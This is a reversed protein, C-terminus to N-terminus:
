HHWPQGTIVLETQAEHHANKMTVPTAHFGHRAVLERIVPTASYTLMFPSRSRALLRFLQEHDLEYCTYLRQGVNGGGATYPPDVFLAARKGRGYLLLPLLALADGQSFVIRPVYPQLDRIRRSLTEPYWRSLLGQGKEGEQILAAGQALIGARRTRNLVLTRFGHELISAPASRELAEVNERTLEFKKICEALAEGERLVAHWFAAVDPDLDLMVCSEVLDEMVATLSVIGGGCFPEVLLKPRVQNLWARVHPILWTKGGPYRLPSRQPVQSVNSAVLPAVSDPVGKSDTQSPM